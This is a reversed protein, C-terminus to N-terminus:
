VERTSVVYRFEGKKHIGSVRGLMWKGVENRVFGEETVYGLNRLPLLCSERSWYYYAQSDLPFRMRRALSQNSFPGTLITKGLSKLSLVEKSKQSIM